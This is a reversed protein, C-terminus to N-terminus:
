VGKVERVGGRVCRKGGRVGGRVCVELGLGRECM